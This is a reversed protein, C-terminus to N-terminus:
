QAARRGRDKTRDRRRRLYDAAVRLLVSEEALEVGQEANLISLKAQQYARRERNGAFVPQSLTVRYSWDNEPLITRDAEGEGGRFAVEESNRTLRGTVGIRPMIASLYYSKQAEAVGVEARARGVSPNAQLAREFAAPLTLPATGTEATEAFAPLAAALAMILAIIRV